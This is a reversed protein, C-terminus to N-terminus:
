EGLREKRAEYQAYQGARSECWRDFAQWALVQGGDPAYAYRPQWEAHFKSLHFADVSAPKCEHLSTHRALVNDGCNPCRVMVADPLSWLDEDLDNWSYFGHHMNLSVSRVNTVSASCCTM